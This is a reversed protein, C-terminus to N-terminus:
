EGQPPDPLPMWHTFMWTGCDERNPLFMEIDVGDYIGTGVIGYRPSYCLILTDKPATDIPQWQSARTNWRKGSEEGEDGSELGGGCKMCEVIASWRPTGFRIIEAKGGCFPCPKLEENM